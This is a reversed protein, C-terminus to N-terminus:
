EHESVHTPLFLSAYRPSHPSSVSAETSFYHWRVTSSQAVLEITKSATPSLAKSIRTKKVEQEILRSHFSSSSKAVLSWRLIFDSLHLVPIDSSEVYRGSGGPLLTRCGIRRNIEIKRCNFEQDSEYDDGYINSQRWCEQFRDKMSFDTSSIILLITIRSCLIILLFLNIMKSAGCM